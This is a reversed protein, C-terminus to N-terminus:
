PASRFRDVPSHATGTVTVSGPMPIITLDRLDATCTVTAATSAGPTLSGADVAVKPYACARRAAHLADRAARQADSRARTETRALSAARAAQHAADAVVLRADALRGLAVVTLLVMVLLPTVLVLEVSASGRDGAWREPRSTM